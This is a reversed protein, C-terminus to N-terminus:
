EFFLVDYLSSQEFFLTIIEEFDNTCDDKREACRGQVELVSIQAVGFDVIEELCGYFPLLFGLQCSGPSVSGEASVSDLVLAGGVPNQTGSVM